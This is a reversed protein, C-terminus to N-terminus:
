RSAYKRLWHSDTCAGAEDVPVGSYLDDSIELIVDKLELKEKWKEEIADYGLLAGLINGTVAGTSDSDGKHNVAAIVGASFDDRYKLACYLSIGLAEEAIWGEGLRHINELDSDTSQLALDVARDIIDCLRPLFPDGAFVEATTDRAELIVDKLSFSPQEPYVIRNVIHVLVAAPMYGLSHGHTIAALQAGEYDLARIDRWHRLGMPAVRMVGGCGKSDNLEALIYDGVRGPAENQLRLSRLCTGGPARRRWLGEVDNLWSIGGPRLSTKRGYEAEQTVLWDQYATAVYRRPSEAQGRLCNMTEGYLLGNATYLAMQTDDTIEAEGAANLDYAEIGDPWYRNFIQRESRFEVPWGLADGVAGGIMCGRIRDRVVEKEAASMIQEELYNKKGVM